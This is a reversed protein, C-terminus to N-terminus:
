NRILGDLTIKTRYKLSIHENSTRKNTSEFFNKNACLGISYLYNQFLDIQSISPVLIMLYTELSKEYLCM